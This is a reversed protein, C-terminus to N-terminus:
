SMDMPEGGSAQAREAQKAAKKEAKFSEIKQKLETNPIVDEIKLPARNFPDHPDSLLHSQIVARDITMKSQPLIVPDKMIDFILPDLFEDPIEGLDAEEQEDAEKAEQVQGALREWRGIEEDSKLAFRRMISTAKNFNDPKYSRGDRAIALRFNEKEQLNLYVDVIESLMSKANFGYEQPNEVKLNTQKPGVLADLNYDLMDALRQVIEPMTFSDSLAETFLKLMAVTENTLGMYSKARGKAAELAEEKEKRLTEDSIANPDRLQRTIEHIQTFASFSEDLVFTVDNLLLNVFRVFFDLNVKAETGLHDRYVPNGWVCKFVQFIEFRINFKDYFQTHAGTSECEIYFQMLAHLLNDTAFKTAFLLDGLVGKSRGQFPLTGYYLITVLGSKLYPNKIYASSRLFTLCITILEECQTSTAIQPMMRTIFKFNDVIDELFYEPLCKFAEPQQAPLPLKLPKQPYGPSVIRLLWVIVYRMFQMARGQITEDLLVGQTALITCHSREIADKYKKLANEFVQLQAPNHAYKHRETEFKELEREMWKLDKQLQTLKSQAAETGYHHAAVTLFFCESIFNNEGGVKTSYFEDSANQDANMKTEDKIDVRPSRRLYDIDIRDIKSFTSDMFPDCLRDLIVTINNMFGDSSVQKSDVRMARRKHNLNVTAAFWDLMNSRSDKARIFRNAVDFLEDQHTALTMRLARQANMIVSRDRTRSGAFYNLAVESQLPSLKFFPGLLTDNELAPANIGSPLFRPSQSLAVVLPPYQCVNRLAMMYPKFQDNMSKKSLDQSLQEVAGVLADKVSEDEEFRSVAENLFDHCIGHEDEPDNLMHQALPNVPWADLGFMDPVNVALMTYNLTLRRAEKMVEARAPDSKDATTAGRSVRAARKWCSLLWNLPKGDPRNSAGEFLVGELVTTNLLLPSGADELDGKVGPVYTLRNGHADQTQAEDLSVRFINSLIRHQWTEFNEPTAAPRPRPRSENENDRKQPLSTPAKKTISIKPAPAQSETVAAPTSSPSPSPATAPIPSPANAPQPTSASPSAAGSASNSDGPAPSAPASSQGGLKALRKNRIKDADSLADSM